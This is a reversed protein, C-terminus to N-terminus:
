GLPEWSSSSGHNPRKFLDRIPFDYELEMTEDIRSFSSFPGAM